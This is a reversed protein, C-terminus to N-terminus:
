TARTTRRGPQGSVTGDGFIDKPDIAERVLRELEDFTMPDRGPNTSTHGTFQGTM